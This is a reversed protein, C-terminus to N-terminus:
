RSPPDYIENPLSVFVIPELVWSMDVVGAPGSLHGVAEDATSSM